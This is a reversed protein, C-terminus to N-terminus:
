FTLGLRYGLFSIEKGANAYLGIHIFKFRATAGISNYTRNEMVPFSTQKKNGFSHIIEPALVFGKYPFILRAGVPINLNYYTNNTEKIPFFKLDLGYILNLPLSILPKLQIVGIGTYGAGFKVTDANAFFYQFHNEFLNKSVFFVDVGQSNGMSKYKHNLLGINFGKYINDERRLKDKSFMNEWPTKYKSPKYPKSPKYTYKPVYSENNCDSGSPLGGKRAAAQLIPLMEGKKVEVKEPDKNKKKKDEDTVVDKGEKDSHLKLIKVEVRRNLQRGEPTSNPAVPIKEGYGVAVIRNTNIGKDVIYKKVSEVRDQSLKQNAEDSGISDTHGGLEIVIDSNKLIEVLKDLEAKSDDKLVASGTEFFINKLEFTAGIIARKVHFDKQLSLDEENETMWDYKAQYVLKEIEELVKNYENTLKEYKDFTERLNQSESKNLNDMEINMADLKTKLEDLRARQVKIKQQFTYRKRYKDPDTLDIIESYYLYGKMDIVALYKKNLPLSAQYYGNEASSTSKTVETNTAMDIFRINVEAFSDKENYVYGYLKFLQEPRMSYPMLFKYIDANGYGEPSNRRVMYALKGSAPISLDADDELTNIYKGLNVPESWKTWSDDLRRSVFIDTGGFGFLGDTSFYLTKSDAALFPYKENSKSNLNGLSIPKSWGNESLFTVYMDSQNGDGKDTSYILTKGDPGICSLSEWNKTNIAGGLNCPPTWGDTTKVSYFLDGGGFSGSFNGFVIAVKEDPSIALIGEHSTSNLGYLNKPTSWNGSADLTSYWIDEGGKGGVKDSLFYLTKGDALIRPLFDSSTSNITGGLNEVKVKEDDRKLLAILKDTYDKDASSYKTKYLELSEIAKEFNQLAFYSKALNLYLSPNAPAEREFAFSARQYDKDKFYKDGSQSYSLVIFMSLSLTFLIKKM